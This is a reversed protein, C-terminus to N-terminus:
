EKVCPFEKEIENDILPIYTVPYTVEDYPFRHIIRLQNEILQHEVTIPQAEVDNEKHCSQEYGGGNEGRQSMLYLPSFINNKEM